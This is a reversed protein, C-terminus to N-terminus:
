HMMGHVSVLVKKNIIDHVIILIKHYFQFLVFFLTLKNNNNIVRKGDRYIFNPTKLKRFYPREGM